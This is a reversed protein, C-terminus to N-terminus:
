LTPLHDRFRVADKAKIAPLPLRDGDATDGLAFPQNAPVLLRASTDGVGGAHADSDRGTAQNRQDALPAASAVANVHIQALGM